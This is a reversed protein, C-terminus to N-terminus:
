KKGAKGAKRRIRENSYKFGSGSPYPDRKLLRLSRIEAAIQGVRQKDPGSILIKNQAPIDITIGPEENVTVPHSFGINFVVSNGQKQARWGVGVMDLEKTFGDTVGVVMNNILARTLGHLSKHEKKESPRTVLVEGGEIKIAMDKHMIQNLTGKPGKVTVSSGGDNLSEIKIDVGKPIVVPMKGIRSM